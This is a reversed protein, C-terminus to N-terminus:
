FTNEHLLLLNKKHIISLIYITHFLWSSSFDLPNKVVAVIYWSSLQYFLECPSADTNKKSPIYINEALNSM